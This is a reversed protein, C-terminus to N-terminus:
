PNDTEDYQLVVRFIKFDTSAVTNRWRAWFMDTKPRQKQDVHLTTRQFQTRNADVPLARFYPSATQFTPVQDTAFEVNSTGTGATLRKHICEIRQPSLSKFASAIFPAFVAYATIGEANDATGTNIREIRGDGTAGLNSDYGIYDRRGGSTIVSGCAGISLSEVASANYVYPTSWIYARKSDPNLLEEVGSAEVGPSFDYNFVFWGVDNDRCAVVLKSGMVTISLTNVDADKAANTAATQIAYALDGDANGPNYLDASIIFERRNKDTAVIGETTAYVAWGNGSALSLYSICGRTDNVTSLRYDFDEGSNAGRVNAFMQISDTYAIIAAGEIDVIGTCSRPITQRPSAHPMRRNGAAWANPALSIGSSAAGPSSITFYVSTKDPNDYGPLASPKMHLMVPYTLSFARIYGLTGGTVYTNDGTEQYFTLTQNASTASASLVLTTANTKSVVYTGATVGTGSVKMGVGVSSFGSAVATTLTTTSATCNAVDFTTKTLSASPLSGDIGPALQAAWHGCNVSALATNRISNIADVMKEITDLTSFPFKIANGSPTGSLTPYTDYAPAVGSNKHLELDTSTIRIYYGSSGYCNDSTDAANRDFNTNQSCPAIIISGTNPLTYSIIARQDGTGIYRARRPMTLDFRVVDADELLSGDDGNYDNYTTQTNNRLVGMVRLDLPSITVTDTSATRNQKPTRLLIRAVTGEPGIPINKYPVYPYKNTPTASITGVTILGLGTTLASAQIARPIFPQSYSGDEFQFMVSVYFTDGEVWTSGSAAAPLTDIQPPWLPPIPGTPYIRVTSSGLASGENFRKNWRWPTARLNPAYIWNQTGLLGRSGCTLFQQMFKDTGATGTLSGRNYVGDGSDVWVPVVKLKYGTETSIAPTSYTSGLSFEELLSYNKEATTLGANTSNVYITGPFGVDATPFGDNTDNGYLAALTPYGDTLSPSDIGFLKRCKASWKKNLLGTVEAGGFITDNLIACGARQSLDGTIPNIAFNKSSTSATNDSTSVLQDPKAMFPDVSSTYGGTWPGRDATLNAEPM